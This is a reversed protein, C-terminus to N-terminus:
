TTDTRNRNKKRRDRMRQSCANSCYEKDARTRYEGRAGKRPSKPSTGAEFTVIRSCDEAKCIRLSGPELVYFRMQLYMAGLLSRFGWGPLYDNAPTPSMLHANYITPFCDREIYERVTAAINDVLTHRMKEASWRLAVRLHRRFFDRMRESDGSNAAEFAELV